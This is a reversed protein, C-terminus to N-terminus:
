WDASRYLFLLLGQQGTLDELARPRGDQDQAALLPL